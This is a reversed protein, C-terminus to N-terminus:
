KTEMFQKQFEEVQNQIEDPIPHIENVPVMMASKGDERTIKWCVRQTETLDMIFEFHEEAQRQTIGIPGIM